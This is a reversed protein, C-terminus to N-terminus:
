LLSFLNEISLFKGYNSNFLVGATLYGVTTMGASAPIWFSVPTRILELM